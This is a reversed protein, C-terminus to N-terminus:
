PPPSGVGAAKLSSRIRELVPGAVTRAITSDRTAGELDELAVHLLGRAREGSGALSRLADDYAGIGGAEDGACLLALGLDLRVSARQEGVVLARRLASAAEHFRGLRILSWGGLELLAVDSESSTSVAAAVEDYLAMSRDSEGLRYLVNALGVKMEVSDPARRLATEYADRAGPLDTGGSNELSWALLALADFADPNDRLVGMTIEAADEYRAAENLTRARELLADASRDNTEGTDAAAPGESVAARM